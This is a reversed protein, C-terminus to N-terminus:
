ELRHKIGKMVNNYWTEGYYKKINERIPKYIVTPHNRSNVSDIIEVLGQKGLESMINRMANSPTTRLIKCISMLTVPKGSTEVFLTERILQEKRIDRSFHVQGKKM